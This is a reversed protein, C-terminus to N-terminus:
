FFNERFKWNWRRSGLKLLNDFGKWVIRRIIWCCILVFLCRVKLIELLFDVGFRLQEIIGLYCCNLWQLSFRCCNWWFSSCCQCHICCCRARCRCCQMSIMRQKCVSFYAHYYIFNRYVHISWYNFNKMIKTVRYQHCNKPTSSSYSVSPSISFLFSTKWM